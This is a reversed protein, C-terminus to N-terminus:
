TVDSRGGASGGAPNRASARRVRALPRMAVVLGLTLWAPGAGALAGARRRLGTDGRPSELAGGLMGSIEPIRGHGRATSDGGLAASLPWRSM